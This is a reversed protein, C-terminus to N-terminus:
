RDRLLELTREIAGEDWDGHGPIVVKREPYREMVRQISAPWDSTVADELNGLSPSAASKIFCGGYLVHHNNFYVVSNDPTHGPGPYFVDISSSGFTLLTDTQFSFDPQTFNNIVAEEFTFANAITPINRAKLADIGGIRDNHAHTIVAFVIPKKINMEIWELLRETQANEWPTDILAVNESSEAILGNASVPHRGIQM